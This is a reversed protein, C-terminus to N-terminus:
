RGQGGPGTSMVPTAEWRALAAAGEAGLVERRQEASLGLVTAVDGLLLAAPLELESIPAETGAELEQRLKALRQMISM